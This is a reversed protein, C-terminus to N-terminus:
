PLTQRHESIRWNHRSWVRMSYVNKNNNSTATRLQLVLTKSTLSRKKKMEILVLTRCTLCQYTVFLLSSLPSTLTGISTPSSSGRPFRYVIWLWSLGNKPLTSSWRVKHKMISSRIERNLLKVGTSKWSVAGRWSGRIGRLSASEKSNSRIAPKYCTSQLHFYLSTSLSLLLLNISSLIESTGSILYCATVRQRCRWSRRSPTIPIRPSLVCDM